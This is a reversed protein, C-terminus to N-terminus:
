NWVWRAYRTVATIRGIHTNINDQEFERGLCSCHYPAKNLVTFSTPAKVNRKKLGGMAAFATQWQEAEFIALEEGVHIHRLAVRPSHKYCRSESFGGMTRSTGSSSKASFSRSTMLSALSQRSALSLRQSPKKILNM